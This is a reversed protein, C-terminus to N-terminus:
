AREGVDALSESRRREPFEVSRQRKERYMETDMEQLFLDISGEKGHLFGCGAAFSLIYPADSTKNFEDARKRIKELLPYIEEKSSVDQLIVFEDGGYRSIVSKNGVVEFLLRGMNRIAEDGAGHGFSDNIAKFRNIDLMIGAVITGSAMKREKEKLYCDFYQRSYLGSLSDISWNEKQLNIFLSAVSISASAWLVSLGYFLFQCISGICLPIIFVIEPMFLYRRVKKRFTYMLMVGYGLYFYSVMYAIFVMGTRRYVNDDGVTFLVPTFCSAISMIFIIVAPIAMKPYIRKLRAMDRYLKYDAYLTWIFAFAINGIFLACNSIIVIPRAGAFQQGDVFFTLPECICLGINLLIMVFFLKSDFFCRLIGRWSGTLLILLLAIGFANAIVIATINIM